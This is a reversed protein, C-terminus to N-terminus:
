DEIITIFSDISEILEDPFDDISVKKINIDEEKSMFEELLEQNKEYISLTEVYDKSLEEIKSVVDSENDFSVLGNKVVIEGNSDKKACERIISIRKQEFEKYKETQSKEELKTFLENYPKLKSKIEELYITFSFPISKSGVGEIIDYLKKIDKRIM